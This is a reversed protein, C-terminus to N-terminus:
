PEAKKKRAPTPKKAPAEEVKSAPEAAPEEKPPAIVTPEQPPPVVTAPKTPTPHRVQGLYRRRVHSGVEVSVIVPPQTMELGVVVTGSRTNVEFAVLSRRCARCDNALTGVVRDTPRLHLLARLGGSTTAVDRVAQPGELRQMGKRYNPRTVVVGAALQGAFADIDDAALPDLARHCLAELSADEVRCVATLQPEVVPPPEETGPPLRTPGADERTPEPEAPTPETPAPAAPDAKDIPKSIPKSTPKRSSGDADSSAPKGTATSSTSGAQFSYSCAALGLVLLSLAARAPASTSAFSPRTMAHTPRGHDGSGEAGYLRLAASLM